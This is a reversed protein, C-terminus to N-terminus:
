RKGGDEGKITRHALRIIERRARETEGMWNMWQIDMLIDRPDDYDYIRKMLTGKAFKGLTLFACDDRLPSVGGM